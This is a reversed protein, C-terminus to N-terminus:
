RQPMPMKEVDARSASIGTRHQAHCSGPPQPPGDEWWVYLRSDASTFLLTMMARAARVFEGMTMAGHLEFHISDVSTLRDLEVMPKREVSLVRDRDIGAASAFAQCLAIDDNTM